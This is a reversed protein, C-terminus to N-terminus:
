VTITLVLLKGYTDSEAMVVVGLIVPGHVLEIPRLIYVGRKNTGRTSVWAVEHYLPMITVSRAERGFAPGLGSGPCVQRRRYWIALVDARGSARGPAVPQAENPQGVVWM